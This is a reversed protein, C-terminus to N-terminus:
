AEEGEDDDDVQPRQEIPRKDTIRLVRPESPQVTYGKRQQVKYTVGWGDIGTISANEGMLAMLKTEIISCRQKYKKMEAIMAARRAFLNPLENNGTLDLV